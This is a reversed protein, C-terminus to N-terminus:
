TENVKTYSFIIEDEEVDYSRVIRAGNYHTPGSVDGPNNKWWDRTLELWKKPSITLLNPDMGNEHICATWIEELEKM